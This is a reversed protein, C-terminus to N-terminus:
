FRGAGLPDRKVPPAASASSATADAKRVPLARPAVMPKATVSASPTASTVPPEVSSTAAGQASPLVEPVQRAQPVEVSPLVVTRESPKPAPRLAIVAAITVGLLLMASTGFILASRRSRAGTRPPGNVSTAAVLMTAPPRSSSPPLRQTQAPAIGSVSPRPSPHSPLAALVTCVEHMSPRGAPTHGLMRMVLNALWAPVHEGLPRPATQTISRFVQGFNEGGFPKTGELCEYLVVGLSWVDSASTIIKEGYVQEPSMYVPTGMLQGTHTVVTADANAIIAKALGFDLVKVEVHAAGESRVLFVNEPKLDRHVVGLTHAHAMAQAVPLMLSVAHHVTLPGRDLISGLTQGALLEMVLFAPGGSVDWYDFVQVINRHSLGAAVKAERLFRAGEGSSGATADSTKLVKIAVPKDTTVQRTEWVVGMGGEGLKQVLRYRDALLDGPALDGTDGKGM